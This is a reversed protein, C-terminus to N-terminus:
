STLRLYVDELSPRAVTLGLLPTGTDLSWSTLQHLLRVEDDTRVEWADGVKAGVPPTHAASFRVLVGETDRGGLSDPTGEAVVVGEAIVVVRDALAQAEDMYHTTLLVTTGSGALKRVLEWAGHRASPDFGTTPEDLFVLDPTGVIGLAVDLRRRQGGSLTRVRAGAKDELGVLDLLESVPRPRQYYGRHKRIVQEVTLYPDSSSEQLVIGVRQRPLHVAPDSGLVSVSGASRQRFGELVEVTSTKGAGNPGLLALVEGEEVRLDIGRVAEVDGYAVRLGSVDIASVRDDL